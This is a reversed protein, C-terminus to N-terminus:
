TADRLEVNLSNGANMHLIMTSDGQIRVQGNREHHVTIWGWKNAFKIMANEPLPITDLNTRHMIRVNSDPLEGRLTDATEKLERVDSRLSALTTQVWRPLREERPDPDLNKGTM